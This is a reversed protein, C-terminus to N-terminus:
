THRMVPGLSVPGCWNPHDTTAELTVTPYGGIQRLLETRFAAGCGIFVGPLGGAEYQPPRLRVLIRGGLAALQQDAQFHPRIRALAGPLPHSDNDLMLTIPGRAYKLGVNRAAAALNRRLRILGVWGFEHRVM